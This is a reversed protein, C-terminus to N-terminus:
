HCRSKEEIYFNSFSVIDIIKSEKENLSYNEQVTLGYWQLETTSKSIILTYEFLYYCKRYINFIRFENKNLDAQGNNFFYFFLFEQKTTQSEVNAKCTIGAETRLFSASRISCALWRMFCWGSRGILGSFDLQKQKKPFFCILNSRGVWYWQRLLQKKLVM